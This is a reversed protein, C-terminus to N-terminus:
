NQTNSKGYFENPDFGDDTFAQNNTSSPQQQGSGGKLYDSYTM